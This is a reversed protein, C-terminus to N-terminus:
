AEIGFASLVHEIPESVILPDSAGALWIETIDRKELEYEDDVTVFGPFTGVSAVHVTNVWVPKVGLFAFARLQGPGDKTKREVMRTFKHFAM